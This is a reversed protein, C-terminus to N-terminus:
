VLWMKCAARLHKETTLHNVLTIRGKPGYKLLDNCWRCWAVGPRDVKEIADGVVLEIERVSRQQGFDLTVTAKKKVDPWTWNWKNKVGHEIECVRAKDQKGLRQFM